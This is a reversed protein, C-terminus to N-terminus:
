GDGVSQRVARGDVEAVRGACANIADLPPPAAAASVAMMVVAHMRTVAPM